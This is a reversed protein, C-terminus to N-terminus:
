GLHPGDWRGDRLWRLHSVDRVYRYVWVSVLTGGELRAPALVREYENRADGAVIGEYADLWAFVEAPATLRLVEGHVLDGPDRSAALGPYAGLDYLRGQLTAAGFSRSIRHLREREDRGYDSRASGMLTGYVFLFDSTM